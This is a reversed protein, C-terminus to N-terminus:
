DRALFRTLCSVSMSLCPMYLSTPYKTTISPFLSPSLSLLSLRGRLSHSLSGLVALLFTTPMVQRKFPYFLYNSGISQLKWMKFASMTKEAAIFMSSLMMKWYLHIYQIEQKIYGSDDTIRALDWSRANAEMTASGIEGQLKIDHIHNENFWLHRRVKFKEESSKKDM